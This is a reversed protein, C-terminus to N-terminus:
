APFSLCSIEDIQRVNVWRAGTDAEEQHLWFHSYVASLGSHRRPFDNVSPFRELLSMLCQFEDM